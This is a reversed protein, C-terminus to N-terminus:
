DRLVYGYTDPFCDLITNNLFEEKFRREYRDTRIRVFSLTHPRFLGQRIKRNQKWAEKKWLAWGRKNSGAQFDRKFTTM